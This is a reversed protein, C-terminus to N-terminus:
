DGDLVKRLVTLMTEATYPKPVFHIIGVGLAKAVEGSSTLGSSGIIRVRPNMKKLAVILTPGDMIPMAMDTLVASIEHRHGAYLAVAEAGHCALLVRYGFLELTKKAVVRVAEEDDVVLILESNGRPHQTPEASTKDVAAETTNAPLYVRFQSGNGQESCVKIFGGHSKVIALTTSLGLGTGKGLEKTTFFPEFIKDVMGPPIGVGTDAVTIMVYAGPKSEPNMGAFVEDIVVNELSVTLQGGHPMADRANVSLNMLVQHLQTPDGTVTWLNRAPTLNFDINKPFTDRVIKSIDRRIHLPNVSIRKGEVGRAFSLVQAVLEAGRQASSELTGLLHLGEQTQVLGKLMEVAMMIPALVNNLDHAIGGALTGISEMRQARLFQAEMKNKETIDTDIILVARPKGYEDRLLTWRAEVTIQRGSKNVNQLEGS